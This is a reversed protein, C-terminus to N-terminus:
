PPPFAAALEKAREKLLQYLDSTDTAMIQLEGDIVLIGHTIKGLEDTVRGGNHVLAHRALRAVNIASNSWCRDRLNSSFADALDKAFDNRRPMRYDPDIRAAAVCRTLFDEYSYYVAAYCLRQSGWLVAQMEFNELHKEWMALIDIDLEKLETSALTERFRTELRALAALMRRRGMNSLGDGMESALGQQTAAIWKAGHWHAGLLGKAFGRFQELMLYPMAHTNSVGRWAACLDFVAQAIPTAATAEMIRAAWGHDFFSKYSEMRVDVRFTKKM